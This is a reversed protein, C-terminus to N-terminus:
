ISNLDSPNHLYAMMVVSACSQDKGLNPYTDITKVLM